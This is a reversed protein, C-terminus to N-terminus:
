IAFQWRTLWVHKVKAQIFQINKISRMTQFLREVDKLYCPAEYMQDVDRSFSFMICFDADSSDSAFGNCSSGVLHLSVGPFQRRILLLLASRLKMKKELLAESQAHLRAYAKIEETFTHYEDAELVETFVDECSDDLM